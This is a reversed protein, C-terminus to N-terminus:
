KQDEYLKKQLNRTSNRTEYKRKNMKLQDKSCLL